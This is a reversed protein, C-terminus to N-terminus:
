SVKYESAVMEVEITAALDLTAGTLVLDTGFSSSQAATSKLLRIDETLTSSFISTELMKAELSEVITSPHSGSRGMPEVRM